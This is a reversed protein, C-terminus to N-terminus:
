NEAEILDRVYNAAEQVEVISEYGATTRITTCKFGDDHRFLEVISVVQSPNVFVPRGSVSDSLEILKM